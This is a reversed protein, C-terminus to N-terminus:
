GQPFALQLSLSAASHGDRRHSVVAEHIPRASTWLSSPPVPPPRPPGPSACQRSQLSHHRVADDREGKFGWREVWRGIWGCAGM